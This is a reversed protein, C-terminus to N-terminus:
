LRRLWISGGPNRLCLPMHEAFWDAHFHELFTNFLVIEFGSNFMLFARLLYAETWTRGEEIWARPYEFPFFVDHLHVHVGRALRPLVEFFLHNVDSGIKSVHTSDIFLIDNAELADFVALDVSQVGSSLVTIRSADGPRLLSNLLEPYPEVFTCAVQGGFFLENTDLTVCSSHGSGVEVIRRPRLHRVMCYLFLADSYSYAGNEFWYRRPPTRTEPFPQEDYYRQFSRLLELQRDERLEIAPLHGPPDGFLRAAHQHVYGLSPIASYFHGPPVFQPTDASAGLAARLTAVEARLADREALLERVPPVRSGLARVASRIRREIGTM